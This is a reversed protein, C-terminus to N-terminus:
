IFLVTSIASSLMHCRCEACVTAQTNILEKLATLNWLSVKLVIQNSINLHAFRNWFKLKLMCISQAVNVSKGKTTASSGPQGMLFNRIV